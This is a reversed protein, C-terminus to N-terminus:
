KLAAPVPIVYKGDMEAVYNTMTNSSSGNANNSDITIVLKKV